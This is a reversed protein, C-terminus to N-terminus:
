RGSREQIADLIDNIMDGVYPVGGLLDFLFLIAAVVVTAGLVTGFGWAVGAMFNHAVIRRLSLYIRLAGRGQRTRVNLNKDNKEEEM